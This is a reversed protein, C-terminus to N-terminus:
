DAAEYGVMRYVRVIEGSFGCHDCWTYFVRNEANWYEVVLGGEGSLDNACSPCYRPSDRLHNEADRPWGGRHEGLVAVDHVQDLTRHV